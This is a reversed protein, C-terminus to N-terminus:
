EKLSLMNLGEINKFDKENLTILTQNNAICISAIMLDCEQTIKGKKKLEAFKKGYIFSAKKNFELFEVNETFEKIIRVNEEHKNSLFAGKYLEALIIPNITADIKETEQLNKLKDIVKQENNLIDIIVNTDLCYRM